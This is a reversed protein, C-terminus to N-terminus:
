RAAPPTSSGPASRRAAPPRRPDEGAPDGRHRRQRRYPGRWLAPGGRLGAPGNGFRHPVGAAPQATRLAPRGGPPGGRGVAQLLVACGGKKSVESAPLEYRQARGHWMGATQIGSVANWYTLRRGDNEGKAITVTQPPDFYVIVLHANRAAPAGDAGPAAEGADIMVGDDGDHSVTLSVRMGEGARNMAELADSVAKRSAGNVHM